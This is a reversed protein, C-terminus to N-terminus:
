IGLANTCLAFIADLVIIGVIGVVVASTAAQGVDAASRGARLGVYCGVMGVLAGFLVSKIAGIVFHRAAIAHRTEELYGLVTLDSSMVGVAMGGLMGVFCAYLYLVPMMLVLAAVRPLVLHDVPPIGLTELADIEENGQMTALHAAFAAGTRGAMVIATMIVAMERAMAIGVLDALYVQAGFQQLQVVGVFALIGGVLINVVSVIPLAAAGVQVLAATFDARRTRPHPRFAAMAALVVMGLMTAVRVIGRGQGRTWDAFRARMMRPPVVPVPRDETRAMSLLSQVGDPLDRFQVTRGARACALALGLLFAPLVSGWRGVQAGSVVVAGGSLRAAVSAGDPIDAAEVWDGSLSLLATGGERDLRWRAPTTM